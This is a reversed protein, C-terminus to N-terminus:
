DSWCWSLHYLNIRQTEGGSLSRATRDLSLYGLGVDRLYGLRTRISELPLDSKPDKCPNVTEMLELLETVPLAYLEPLLLREM